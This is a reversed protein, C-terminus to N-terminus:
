RYKETNAKAQIPEQEKGLLTHIIGLSYSAVVRQVFNQFDTQGRDQASDSIVRIIACPVEFEYCVQAVAAGEMEVCLADPLRESLTAIEEGKCLNHDTSAILGEHAKPTDLKFEEFVEPSIFNHMRHSTFTAAAQLLRERPIRDPVFTTVGLYPVDFPSFLPSADMDYQVLSNAVVVDGINVKPHVGAAVGTFLVLDPEFEHLLFTATTAAGVKGWRSITLIVEVGWLFGHHYTRMGKETKIVPKKMQQLLLENEEEMASMIAIKMESM